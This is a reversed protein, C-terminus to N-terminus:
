HWDASRDNRLKINERMKKKAKVRKGETWIIKKRGNRGRRGKRNEEKVGEKKRDERYWEQTGMNEREHGVAEWEGGKQAM